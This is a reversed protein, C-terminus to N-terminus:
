TGVGWRLGRTLMKLTLTSGARLRVKMYAGPIVRRPLRAQPGRPGFAAPSRAGVRLALKRLNARLQGKM